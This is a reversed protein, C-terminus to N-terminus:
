ELLGKLDHAWSLTRNRSPHPCGTHPDPIRVGWQTHPDLPHPM